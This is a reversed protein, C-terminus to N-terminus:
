FYFTLPCSSGKCSVVRTEHLIHLVWSVNLELWLKKKQNQKARNQNKQASITQRSVSNQFFFGGKNLVNLWILSRSHHTKRQARISQKKDAFSLLLGSKKKVFVIEQSRLLHTVQKEPHRKANQYQRHDFKQCM